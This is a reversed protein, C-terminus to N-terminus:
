LLTSYLQSRDTQSTNKSFHIAGIVERLETLFISFSEQCIRIILEVM